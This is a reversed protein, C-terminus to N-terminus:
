NKRTCIDFKKTKNLVHKCEFLLMQEMKITRLINLM